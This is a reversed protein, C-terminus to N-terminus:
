YAWDYASLRLNVMGEVSGGSIYIRLETLQPFFGCLTNFDTKNFRELIPDWALFAVTLSTINNPTWTRIGEMEERFWGFVCRLVTLSTLTPLPLFGALTDSRGTYERLLPLLNSAQVRAWDVDHEDGNGDFGLVEVVPFKSLFVRIERLNSPNEERRTISLKHVNPFSPLLAIVETIPIDIGLLERLRDPHFLRIFRGSEPGGFHCFRSIRYHHPHTTESLSAASRSRWITSRPCAVYTLWHLKRLISIRLTFSSFDSSAHFASWFRQKEYTPFCGTTTM